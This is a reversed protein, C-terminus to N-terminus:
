NSKHKNPQRGRNPWRYKGPDYGAGYGVCQGADRGIGGHRCPQWTVELECEQYTAHDFSAMFRSSANGSGNFDLCIRGGEEYGPERIAAQVQPALSDGTVSLGLTSLRFGAVFTPCNWTIQPHSPKVIQAQDGQIPYNQNDLQNGTGFHRTTSAAFFARREHMRVYNTFDPTYTANLVLAYWRGATLPIQEAGSFPFTVYTAGPGFSSAGVPDSTALITEQPLGYNNFNPFIEQVTLTLNGAPVGTRSLYMLASGLTTDTDPTFTVGMRERAGAFLRVPWNAGPNVGPDSDHVVTASTNRVLIRGRGWIEQRWGTFSDPGWAGQRGHRTAHRIVASAAAGQSRSCTFRMFADLITAGRPIPLNNFIVHFHAILGFFFNGFLLEPSQFSSLGQFASYASDDKTASVLTTTTVPGAM